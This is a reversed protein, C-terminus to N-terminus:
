PRTIEEVLQPAIRSALQSAIVVDGLFLFNVMELLLISEKLGTSPCGPCYREM